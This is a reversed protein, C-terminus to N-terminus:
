RRREAFSHGYASPYAALRPNIERILRAEFRGTNKQRLPLRLAREILSQTIFPTLAFGIKNNVSNNRGMWYKCRYYPYLREVKGRDLTNREIGIEIKMTRALNDEFEAPVFRPTCAKPDYQSYFSWILERVTFRRDPLYHFNRFIEGGGGNLMLAGGAGRDCRSELDTGPDFIGDAPNGEFLLANKRVQEPFRDMDVAMRSKDVHRLQLKEGDYIGKAIRVDEDNEGGYVHLRPVIGASLLGALVLRSDYGGSLATDINSGFCAVVTEFQRRLVALIDRCLDDETAKDDVKIEPRWPNGRWPRTAVPVAVNSSHRSVEQFVTRGGFTAELFVYEYVGQPDVTPRPIADAVAPFSNSIPTGEGNHWVCYTGAPDTFYGLAGDLCAIVCFSGFLEDYRVSRAVLDDFLQRSAAAGTAGRYFLTGAYLCFNADDRKHLTTQRALLKPAWYVDAEATRAVTEPEFGQRRLNALSKEAARSAGDPARRAILFAGM